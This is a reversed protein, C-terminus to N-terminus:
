PTAGDARGRGSAKAALGARVALLPRLGDSPDSRWPVEDAECARPEKVGDGDAVHEGDADAGAEIRARLARVDEPLWCHGGAFEEGAGDLDVHLELSSADFRTVARAVVEADVTHDSWGVPLDFAGRLTDLAALNAQDPPTPYASVCHLLELADCGAGRLVDVAARVEALTAMGTSLLVPRGAAGVRRLLAHDLVQYSAVKLFAAHPALLEVAGPYFPTSAFAIGCEAARAALPANWGEPLEWAERELLEPHAELAVASFLRRIEFQQFKVADFGLEAAADVFALARGLDRGHNSSVEAIWRTM